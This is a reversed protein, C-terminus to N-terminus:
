TQQIRQILSLCDAESLLTEEELFICDPWQQKLIAAFIGSDTKIHTKDSNYIPTSGFGCSPSRAKFIFAQFQGQYRQAVALSFQTLAATVDKQHSAVDVVRRQGASEIIEIPPRPTGLGAGVEPCIPTLTAYQSLYDSIHQHRKSKGDYRVRDGLLCQSLGINIDPTPQAKNDNKAPEPTPKIM